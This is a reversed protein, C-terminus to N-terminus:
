RVTSFSTQHLVRSQLGRVSKKKGASENNTPTFGAWSCLHKASPFAEMNTSIESIIGIATFVSSIGPTTQLIALEQQYPIALALILKELEAKRPELGFSTDEPNELIKDLIAQASKCFTDSVVNGLQINSVTLYNQLRNKESSKFCTLFGNPMKRTLKREM